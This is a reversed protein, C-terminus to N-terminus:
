LIKRGTKREARLRAAPNPDRSDGYNRLAKGQAKIRQRGTPFALVTKQNKTANHEEKRQPTNPRERVLNVTKRGKPTYVTQESRYRLWKRGIAIREFDCRYM